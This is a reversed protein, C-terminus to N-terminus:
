PRENTDSRDRVTDYQVYEVFRVCIVLSLKFIDLKFTPSLRKDHHRGTYGWDGIFLSTQYM